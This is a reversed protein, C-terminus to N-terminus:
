APQAAHLERSYGFMEFDSAYFRAVWNEVDSDFYDRYDGHESENSRELTTRPLGAKECIRDYDEQMTETHGIMDMALKGQEDMLFESQPLFLLPVLPRIQSITFRIYRAPDSAFSGDRGRFACYSIFREFPNRVFGFKLYASFTEEGLVPRIQRASIHGHTVNAFQPFPFRKQVFRGVQELDDEGLHARLAERVAHTGTKPVAFFIFRHRHSIIM